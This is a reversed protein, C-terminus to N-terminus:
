TWEGPRASGWRPSSQLAAHAKLFGDQASEEADAASGTILYAIRFVTDQHMRSWSQM